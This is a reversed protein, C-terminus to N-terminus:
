EESIENILILMIQKKYSCNLKYKILSELKILISILINKFICCSYPYFIDEYSHKNWLINNVCM